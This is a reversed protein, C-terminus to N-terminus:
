LPVIDRLGIATRVTRDAAATIAYALVVVFLWGALPWRVVAWLEGALVRITPRGTRAHRGFEQLARWNRQGDIAALLAAIMGGLVGMTGLSNATQNWDGVWSTDQALRAVTVLAVAM